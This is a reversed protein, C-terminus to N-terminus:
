ITKREKEQVIEARAKIFAFYGVFGLVGSLILYFIGAFFPKACTQMGLYKVNATVGDSVTM